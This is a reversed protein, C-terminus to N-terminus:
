AKQKPCCRPSCQRGFAREQLWPRFDEIRPVIVGHVVAWLALVCLWGGLVVWFVWNALRAYMQLWRLPLHFALM